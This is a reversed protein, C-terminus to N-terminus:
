ARYAAELRAIAQEPTYRAEYAERAARGAAAVKADDAVVAFREAWATPDAPTALWDPGLPAVIEPMSGRDSALVPLGASFAELITMPMNEYYESPFLLARAQRMKIALEDADVWGLPVVGRDRYTEVEDRADGDGAVLLRMGTPAAREWAALLTGIGKGGTLRGAFLVDASDEPPVQRPGRDATFNPTVVLKEEPLGARVFRERAFQSLVLFRQVDDHWTRRARNYSITL